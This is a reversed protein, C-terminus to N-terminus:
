FIIDYAVTDVNQFDQDKIEQWLKSIPKNPDGDRIQLYEFLVSPKIKIPKKRMQIEENLDIEELGLGDARMHTFSNRMLNISKVLKNKQEAYPM